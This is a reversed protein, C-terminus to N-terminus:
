GPPTPLGKVASIFNAGPLGAEPRYPLRFVAFAEDIDVLDNIHIAHAVFDLSRIRERWEKEEERSNPRLIQFGPLLNDNSERTITSGISRLLNEDVPGDVLVHIQLQFFKKWPTLRRRIYGEAWALYASYTLADQQENEDDDDKESKLDEIWQKADMLMQKEGEYMIDPQMTINLMAPKQMNSLARWVQENARQSSQWTGSIYQHKEMLPIFAMARQISAAQPSKSFFERGYLRDYDAKEEAPKTIFDHPFISFIERAYDRAAQQALAKELASAKGLLAMQLGAEPFNIGRLTLTRNAPQDNALFSAESLAQSEIFLKYRDLAEDLLAGANFGWRMALWEAAPLHFIQFAFTTQWGERTQVTDLYPENM